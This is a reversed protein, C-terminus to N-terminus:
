KNQNFRQEGFGVDVWFGGDSLSPRKMRNWLEPESHTKDPDRSSDIPRPTGAENKGPIRRELFDDFVCPQNKFLVITSFFPSDVGRNPIWPGGSRTLLDLCLSNKIYNARDFVLELAIAM